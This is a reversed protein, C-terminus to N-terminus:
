RSVRRINRNILVRDSEETFRKQDRRASIIQKRESKTLRKNRTM